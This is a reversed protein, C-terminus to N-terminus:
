ARAGDRAPRVLTPKSKSSLAAATEIEQHQFAQGWLAVLELTTFIDSADRARVLQEGRYLRLTHTHNEERYECRWTRYRWVILSRDQPEHDGRHELPPTVNMAYREVALSM